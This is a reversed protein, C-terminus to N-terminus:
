NLVEDNPVSASKKQTKGSKKPAFLRYRLSGFDDDDTVRGPGSPVFKGRSSNMRLLGALANSSTKNPLAWLYAGVFINVV